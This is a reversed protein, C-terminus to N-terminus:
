KSEYSNIKEKILQYTQESVEQKSKSADIVKIRDPFMQCVIRYGQHVRNHFNLSEVDLRDLNKRSAIRNLGSQPDIDYYITLDPFYGEISFQNIKLVDEIGIERGYGQYALSSDIFRDCIVIKGQNIAPIIKEILHQRRSAAYLLAETRVDMATNKVDLIVKRIQEAIDSGGPERSYMVDYGEQTLREIVSTCATTKGSGDCGEITLFLGKRM